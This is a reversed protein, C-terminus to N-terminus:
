TIAIATVSNSDHLYYYIFQLNAMHLQECINAKALKHSNALNVPNVLEGIIVGVPYVRVYIHLLVSANGEAQLM